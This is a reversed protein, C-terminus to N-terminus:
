SRVGEPATLVRLARSTRLIMWIPLLALVTLAAGAAFVVAAGLTVQLPGRHVPGLAPIRLFVCWTLALVM